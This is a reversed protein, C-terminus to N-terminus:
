HIEDVFVGEYGQMFAAEILDFLPASSVIPNDASFYLYHDHELQTLMWTTKGTGRPGTLVMSRGELTLSELWDRRRPPLHALLRTQIQEVRAITDSLTAM